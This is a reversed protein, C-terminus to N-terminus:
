GNNQRYEIIELLERCDFSGDDNLRVFIVPENEVDNYGGYALLTGPPFEERFRTELRIKQVSM